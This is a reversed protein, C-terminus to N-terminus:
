EWGERELIEEVFYVYKRALTLMEVAGREKDPQYSRDTRIKERLADLLTDLPLEGKRSILALLALLVASASPLLVAHEESSFLSENNDISM